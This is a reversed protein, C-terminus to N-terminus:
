NNKQIDVYVEVPTKLKVGSPLTWKVETSQMGEKLQGETDGQDLQSADITGKISSSDLKDLEETNGVLTLSVTDKERDAIKIDYGQVSTVSINKIDVDLVKETEEEIHAVIAVTRVSDKDGLEVGEPLLTDIGWSQNVNRAMGSVDIDPLTIENLSAIVNAKGMIQIKDPNIDVKGTYVYGPAPVGTVKGPKITVYKTKLIEVSTRVSSIKMDIRSPDVVEGNKDYLTIDADNGKITESFGTVDVQAKATIVKDIVSKPGEIALNNQEVVADGYVYGEAPQGVVEPVITVSKKRKAEVNVQIQDESQKFTFDDRFKSTSVEISVTGKTTLYNWDVTAIIDGKSLQDLKSKKGTIYVTKLTKSTEDVEYVKDKDLVNMNKFTIPIDDFKRERQPDDIDTVLVWIIFAFFLSIIKLGWDAMIKKM